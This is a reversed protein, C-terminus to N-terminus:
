QAVGSKLRMGNTPLVEHAQPMEAPGYVFSMPRWLVRFRNSGIRYQAKTSFFQRCDRLDVETAPM